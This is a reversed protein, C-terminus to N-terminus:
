TISMYNSLIGVDITGRYKTQTSSGGKIVLRRIFVQTYGRDKVHVMSSAHANAAQMFVAELFSYPIDLNKLVGKVREVTAANARTVKMIPTRTARRNTGDVVLAFAFAGAELLRTSTMTLAVSEWNQCAMSAPACAAPFSQPTWTPRKPAVDSAFTESWTPSTSFEIERLTLAITSAAEEDCASLLTMSRARACPMLTIVTSVFTVVVLSPKMPVSLALAPACSASLIPCSSCCFPTVDPCIRM